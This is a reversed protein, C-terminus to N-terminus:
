KHDAVNSLACGMAVHSSPDDISRDASIRNQLSIEDFQIEDRIGGDIGVIDRQLHAPRFELAQIAPDGISQGESWSATSCGICSELVGALDDPLVGANFRWWRRALAL